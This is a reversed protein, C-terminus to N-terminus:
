GALRDSKERRHDLTALREELSDECWQLRADGVALVSNGVTAPTGAVDSVESTRRGCGCGGIISGAPM